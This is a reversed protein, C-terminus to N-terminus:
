NIVDLVQANTNMLDKAVVHRHWIVCIVISQAVKNLAVTVIYHLRNPLAQNDRM